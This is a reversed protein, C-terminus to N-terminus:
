TKKFSLFWGNLYPSGDALWFTSEVCNGVDDYKCTLRQFGLRRPDIPNAAADLSEIAIVNGSDDYWSRQEANGDEDNMPRGDKWLSISRLEDGQQDYERRTVFAGAKNPTPLGDQDLYHTQTEYGQPSYDYKEFVACSGKERVLSGDPGTKYATRSGGSGADSPAYIISQLRQGNRDLLIEYAIQRRADYVYEWRSVKKLIEDKFGVGLLTGGLVRPQGAANVLQVSVVPGLRGLKTIKYSVTRHRVEASTLPGVGQPVGRVKVYDKYYSDYKWVSCVLYGLIITALIATALGFALTVLQVRRIAKQKAESAKLFRGEIDTLSVGEGGAWQKARALEAGLLLLGEPRGQSNWIAATKQLKSLHEEFWEKNNSRVPEILRDHSLEYWVAGARQEARVLHSDVLREILGNDLGESAGAGKMVQGRIGDPTILKQGVWERIARETGTDGGAIGRVEKAYYEALAQTVNGFSQIDDLDITLETEPLREWLERCAVQLHLPEVYPGTQSEFTGDPRQVQMTALDNILKVVADPAFIRGGDHAIGSIAQRAADRGLLDIRFRNTLHTPVREAYPDLPALYDERLAFLAWIHPNQLLKGVQDFFEQKAQLALPDVTLIEEFQDFILVVNPSAGPRRPRSGFYEELSMGSILERARQRKKPLQAEFGLNASRVYRSVGPADGELPQLNVRAPGWVDFLQTLRPILGAQILSSKGAGSPSHLLVVREASLLYYLQEIERDRGFIKQGTEISRPGVFPNPKSVPGGSSGSM